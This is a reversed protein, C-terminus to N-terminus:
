TPQEGVPKPEQVDLPISAVKKWRDNTSLQVELRYKGESELEVPQILLNSRLRTWEGVPSPDANFRAIIRGAPDRLVSRWTPGDEPEDRHWVTCVWFAPTKGRLIPVQEVVNIYSVFNSPRDLLPQQCAIASVLETM